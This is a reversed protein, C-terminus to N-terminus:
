DRRGTDVHSQTAGEFCHHVQQYHTHRCRCRGAVAGAQRSGGEPYRHEKQWDWHLWGGGGQPSQATGQWCSRGTCVGGRGASTPIGQGRRLLRVKGLRKKLIWLLGCCDVRAAGAPRSERERAASCPLLVLRAALGLSTERVLAVTKM